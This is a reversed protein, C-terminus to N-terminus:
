QKQSVGYWWTGWRSPWDTTSGRKRLAGAETEQGHVCVCSRALLQGHMGIALKIVDYHHWSWTMRVNNGNEKLFFVFRSINHFYVHVRLWGLGITVWSSQGAKIWSSAQHHWILDHHTKHGNKKLLVFELICYFYVVCLGSDIEVPEKNKVGTWNM